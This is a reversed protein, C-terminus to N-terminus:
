HCNGSSSCCGGKDSGDKDCSSKCCGGKCLCMLKMLSALGVLGYVVRTPMTDAGLLKEVLNFHMLGVLGWNLGGVIILLLVLKKLLCKM